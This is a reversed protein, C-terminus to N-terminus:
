EISLVGSLLKQKGNHTVVVSDINIECIDFNGVGEFVAIISIDSKIVMSLNRDMFVNQNNIVWFRFVWDTNDLADVKFEDGWYTNYVGLSNSLDGNGIKNLDVSFLIREFVAVIDIDKNVAFSVNQEFLDGLQPSEWKVFKWGVGPSCYLDLIEGEKYTYVGEPINLSGVGRKDVRLTYTSVVKKFYAVINVNREMIFTLEPTNFVGLYPDVWRDFVYGDNPKAIVTVEDGKKHPYSGEEPIVSGGENSEINLIVSDEKMVFFSAVTAGETVTFTVEPETHVGFLNSEWKLFEWGEEPVALYTFTSGRQVMRTLGSPVSYGKGIRVMSLWVPDTIPPPKVVFNAILTFDKDPLLYISSSEIRGYELSDWHSFIFGSDPVAVAKFTKGVQIINEGSNPYVKGQGNVEITAIKEVLPSDTFKAIFKVTDKANVTVDSQTKLIADSLNGDVWVEWEYFFNDLDVQECSIFVDDGDFVEQGDSPHTIQGVGRLETSVVVKHIFRAQVNKDSDMKVTISNGSVFSGNVYWGYFKDREGVIEEATFVLEVGDKHYYTGPDINILGKGIRSVVLKNNGFNAKVTLSNKINLLLDINDFDGDQEPYVEWGSFRQGDSIARLPFLVDKRVNFLGKFNTEGGDIDLIEITEEGTTNFLGFDTIDWAGVNPVDEFFWMFRVENTLNNIVKSVHNWKNVVTPAIIVNWTEGGDRSIRFNKLWAPGTAYNRYVLQVSEYNSLDIIPSIISKGEKTWVDEEDNPNLKLYPLDSKQPSIFKIKTGNIGNENIYWLKYYYRLGGIPNIHTFENFEGRKLIFGGGDLYDGAQSNLNPLGFFPETNVALIYDGTTGCNVKVDKGVIELTILDEEPIGSYEKALKLASGANLRGAGLKGIFESNVDDISDSSLLLIERVHEATFKGPFASVILAAVGTVHPCAMSTGQLWSYNDNEDLSLVGLTPIMNMEGGPASIDVTEGYNSYFAKRDNNNTAAVSICKEYASPYHPLDHNNNGASCIVLGGQLVDGGGFECFYDIADLVVQEYVGASTYGWSNSTMAMGNDAAWILANAFGGGINDHFCQLSYLKVSTNPDGNGGAIGSIGNSNNTKAVITGGTHSGHLGPKFSKGPVFNEYGGINGSIDPHDFKVGVDILGVKVDPNGTSLQWAERINIKDLHWMMNFLQDNPITNLVSNGGYLEVSYVPEIIDIEPMGELTSIFENIDVGKEIEIDYWLDFGWDRNNSSKRKNFNVLNEERITKKFSKCNLFNGSNKQLKKRYSKNFKVRLSNPVTNNGIFGGKLKKM